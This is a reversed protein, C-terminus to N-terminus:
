IKESFTPFEALNLKRKEAGIFNQSGGAARFRIWRQHMYLM